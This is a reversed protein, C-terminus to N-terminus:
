DEILAQLQPSLEPIVSGAAQAAMLTQVYARAQDRLADKHRGQAAGTTWVWVALATCVGLALVGPLLSNLETAAWLLGGGGAFLLLWGTEDHWGGQDAIREYEAVTRPKEPVRQGDAARTEPRARGTEYRPLPARARGGDRDRGILWDPVHAVPVGYATAAALVQRYGTLRPHRLQRQHARYTSVVLCTGVVLLLVAAGLSIADKASRGSYPDSAVAYTPSAQVFFPWGLGVLLALVGIVGRTRGTRALLRRHETFMTRVANDDLYDMGHRTGIRRVTGELRPDSVLGSRTVPLLTRPPAPQDTM